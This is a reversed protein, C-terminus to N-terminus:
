RLSWIRGTLHQLASTEQAKFSFQKCIRILCVVFMVVVRCLVGDGKIKGSFSGSLCLLQPTEKVCVSM